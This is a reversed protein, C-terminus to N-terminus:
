KKAVKEAQILNLFRITWSRPIKAKTISSTSRAHPIALRSIPLYTGLAALPTSVNQVLSGRPTQAPIQRESKGAM